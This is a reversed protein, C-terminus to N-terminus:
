HSNWANSGQSGRRKQCRNPTTALESFGAVQSGPETKDRSFIRGTSLLLKEADTLPSGAINALQEYMASPRAKSMKIPRLISQSAPEIANLM